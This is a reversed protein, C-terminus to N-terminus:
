IIPVIVSDATKRLTEAYVATVFEIGHSCMFAINENIESEYFTITILHTRTSTYYVRREITAYM